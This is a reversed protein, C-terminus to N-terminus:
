RGGLHERRLRQCEALHNELLRVREDAAQRVTIEGADERARVHGLADELDDDAESVATYYADHAAPGRRTEQGTM